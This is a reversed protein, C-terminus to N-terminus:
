MKPLLDYKHVKYTFKVNLVPNLPDPLPLYVFSNYTDQFGSQAYAPDLIISKQIGDNFSVDIITVPFRLSNRSFFGQTEAKWKTMYKQETDDQNMYALVLLDSMVMPQDGVSVHQKLYMATLSELEANMMDRENLDKNKDEKIKTLLSVILIAVLLAGLALVIDTVAQIVARKSKM